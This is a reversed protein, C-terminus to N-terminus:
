VLTYNKLLKDIEDLSNFMLVDIISLNPIFINSLQKYVIDGTKIFSLNVGEALFSEKSYLEEGGIPNIYDNTGIEKCIQLIKDAGKLTSDKNLSSSLIIETDLRLYSSIKLISNYLFLALNKEEYLIIEEILPYIQNYYPAKKYNYSITKLIKDNNCNILIENIKKFQSIKQLEITLLHKEGNVLINNRNIWGKKIFNVDDYIVYKEVAGILQFYGIYPFFYPQM